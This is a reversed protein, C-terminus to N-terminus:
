WRGSRRRCRRPRRGRTLHPRPSEIPLRLLAAVVANVEAARGSRRSDLDALTIVHDNTVTGDELRFAEVIALRAVLTGFRTADTDPRTRTQKAQSGDLASTPTQPAAIGPGRMTSPLVTWRACEPRCTM